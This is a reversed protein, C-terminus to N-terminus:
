VSTEIVRGTALEIIRWKEKHGEAVKKQNDVLPNNLDNFSNIYFWQGNKTFDFDYQFNVIEAPRTITQGNFFDTAIVQKM